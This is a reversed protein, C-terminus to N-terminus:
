SWPERLRRVYADPDEGAFIDKGAGMMEGIGGLWDTDPHGAYENHYWDLLYRYRPPIEEARPIIKSKRRPHAEDGPRFLRRTNKGTAYLMRYQGTQPALNAVCHQYAHVSIGRRLAGTINEERTRRIIEQVTFDARDPHEHRLLATAIWTEDAVKITGAATESVM